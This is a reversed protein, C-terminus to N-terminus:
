DPEQGPSQNGPKAQDFDAVFQALGADLRSMIEITVDNVYTRKIASQIALYFSVGLGIFGAITDMTSIGVRIYIICVMTLIGYLLSLVTFHFRRMDVRNLMILLASFSPEMRLFSGYGSVEAYVRKKHAEQRARNRSIIATILKNQTKEFLSNVRPGLISFLLGLLIGYIFDPKNLYDIM